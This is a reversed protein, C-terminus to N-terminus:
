QTQTITGPVKPAKKSSISPPQSVLVQQSELKAELISDQIANKILKSDGTKAAVM